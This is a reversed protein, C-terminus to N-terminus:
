PTPFTRMLKTLPEFPTKQNDPLALPETALGRRGADLDILMDLREESADGVVDM